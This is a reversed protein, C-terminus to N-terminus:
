SVVRWVVVGGGCWVVVVGDCWWVVVGGVVRRAGVENKRRGQVVGKLETKEGKEVHYFTIASGKQPTQQPSRPGRVVKPSTPSKPTRQTMMQM